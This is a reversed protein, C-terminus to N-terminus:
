TQGPKFTGLSSSPSSGSGMAAVVDIVVVDSPQNDKVFSILYRGEIAAEFSVHSYGGPIAKEEVTVVKNPDVMYVTAMGATKTYALLWLSSGVPAVGYKTVSQEGHIWIHNTESYSPSSVYQSYPIKSTGFYVYSPPSVMDFSVFSGGPTYAWGGQRGDGWAWSRDYPLNSPAKWKSRLYTSGNIYFVYNDYVSLGAGTPDNLYNLTGPGYITKVDDSLWSKEAEEAAVAMSGYLALGLIALALFLGNRMIVNGIM